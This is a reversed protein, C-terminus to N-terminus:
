LLKAKLATFEDESILGRAKMDALEKIRAVV